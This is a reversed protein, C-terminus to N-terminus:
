CSDPRAPVLLPGSAARDPESTVAIVALAHGPPLPVTSVAQVQDSDPAASVVGGPVSYQSGTCRDVVHFTWEVARPSIPQQQTAEQPRGDQSPGDQSQRNLPPHLQVLIRVACVAGPACPELARLDLGGVVGASAPAPRPVPPLEVPTPGAPATASQESRGSGMLLHLDQTLREHLLAFEVSVAAVLVALAVVWTWMRKWLDRLRAGLRAAPGEGPLARPASEAAPPGPRPRLTAGSSSGSSSGSGTVTLARVLAALESTAAADDDPGCAAELPAAVLAIDAGPHAAHDAAADLAALLAPAREDACVSSRRAARALHALLVGAAALDDRQRQELPASGCLAGAAWGGLRVQGDSGVRVEGAGVSGHAYGAAHVTRLGCLVGLGVVAAQAPRPRTLELLRSLWVGDDLESVLWLAGNVRQVGLARVLTPARVSALVGAREIVSASEEGASEAAAPDAADYADAPCRLGALRIATVSRGDPDRGLWTSERIPMVLRLGASSPEPEPSGDGTLGRWVLDLQSM